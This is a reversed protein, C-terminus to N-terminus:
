MGTIARNKLLYNIDHNLHEGLTNSMKTIQEFRYKEGDIIDEWKM